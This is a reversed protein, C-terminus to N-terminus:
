ATVKTVRAPTWTSPLLQVVMWGGNEDQRVSSPRPLTRAKARAEDRTAATALVKESYTM